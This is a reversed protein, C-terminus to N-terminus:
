LARALSPFLYLLVIIAVFLLPLGLAPRDIGGPIVFWGGVKQPVGDRVFRLRQGPVSHEHWEAQRGTLALSAILSVAVNVGIGIVVFWPWAIAPPQWGIIPLPVKLAAIGVFGAAVGVLLGKETTNKSFFGLGFMALKAGVFYSGLETLTELISGKSGIFAFSMPIIALAWIVTFGRSAALYHQDSAAPRVCPQYFDTVSVTALSNFSSSLTSM